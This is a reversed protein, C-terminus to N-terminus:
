KKAKLGLEVDALELYSFHLTTPSKREDFLVKVGSSLRAFGIVTGAKASMKPARVRGLESLRVRDGVEFPMKAM